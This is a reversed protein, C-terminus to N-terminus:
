SDVITYEFDLCRSSVGMETTFVETPLQNIGTASFLVSVSACVLPDDAVESLPIIGVLLIYGDHGVNKNPTQEPDRFVEQSHGRLM